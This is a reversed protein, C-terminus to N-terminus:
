RDTLRPARGTGDSRSAAARRAQELMRRLLPSEPYLAAGERLLEWAQVPRGARLAAHATVAYQGPPAYFPRWAGLLWAILAVALAAGAAFAPRGWRWRLREVFFGAFPVMAVLLPLKFRGVVHCGAVGLVVMAIYPVWFRRRRRGALAGLGAGAIGLPFYLAYSSPLSRTLVSLRRLIMWAYNNPIDWANFVLYLKLLQLRAFRGPSRRAFEGMARWMARDPDPEALLARASPPVMFMGDSDPANGVYITIPGNTTPTWRGGLVGNRVLMLTSPLAAAALLLAALVLRRGRGLPRWALVTLALGGATLVHIGRGAAALGVLLGALAALGAQGAARRRGRALALAALAAALLFVILAEALVRQEYYLLTTSLAALLGSTMACARGYLKEAALAIMVCTAAGLLAHVIHVAWFSKGFLLFLAGLFYSYLPGQYYLGFSRLLWDGGAAAAGRTWYELSDSGRALFAFFPDSAWMELLYVSRVALAVLLVIGLVRGLPAHWPRRAASRSPSPM